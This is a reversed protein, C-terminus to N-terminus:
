LKGYKSDADLYIREALWTEVPLDDVYAIPKSLVLDVEHELRLARVVAEAWAWGNQSWVIITAGRKKRDKLIKIHPEHVVLYRQAFDYPDTVAVIKDKKKATRHLILTQDVDFCIIQESRIVTM